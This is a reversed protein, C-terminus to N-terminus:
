PSGLTLDEWYKFVHDPQALRLGHEQTQTPAYLLTQCGAAKSAVIDSMRDGFYTAKEPQVGFFECLRKIMFPSPKAQELEFYGSFLLHQKDFFDSLGCQEVKKLQIDVAGNSVIGVNHGAKKVKDLFQLASNFVTLDAWFVQQQKTLLIEFHEESLSLNFNQLWLELWLRPVSNGLARRCIQNLEVASRVLAQEDFHESLKIEPRLADVHKAAFVLSNSLAQATNILTNDLDFIYNKNDIKM